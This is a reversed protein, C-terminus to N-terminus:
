RMNHFADSTLRYFSKNPCNLISFKSSGNISYWIREKERSKSRIPKDYIFLKIEISYINSMALLCSETSLGLHYGIIEPRNNRYEIKKRCKIFSKLQENEMCFIGYGFILNVLDLPFINVLSDEITKSVSHLSM